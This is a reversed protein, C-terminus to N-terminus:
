AISGSKRFHMEKPLNGPKALINDDYTCCTFPSSHPANTSHYQRPFGSISSPFGTGTGSQVGCIGYLNFQSRVRFEAAVSLRSVAQAVARGTFLLIDPDYKCIDKTDRLLCM